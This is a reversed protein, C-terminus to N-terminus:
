INENNLILGNILNLNTLFLTKYSPSSPISHQATFILKNDSSLDLDAFSIKAFLPLFSILLTFIILCIKKM